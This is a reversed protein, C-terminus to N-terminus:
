PRGIGDWRGARLAALVREAAAKGSLNADTLTKLGETDGLLMRAEILAPDNAILKRLLTDAAEKKGQERLAIALLLRPQTSPIFAGGQLLALGPDGQGRFTAEPPMKLLAALHPEAAAYEEKAVMALALLYRGGPLDQTKALHAAAEDAKGAELLWMAKYLNAHPDSPQKALVRELAALVEPSDKRVRMLQRAADLLIQPDDSTALVQRNMEAAKPLNTGHEAVLDTAEAYLGTGGPMTKRIRAQVAAFEAEPRPGLDIPFTHALLARGGSDAVVVEARGDPSKIVACYPEDPAGSFTWTRAADRARVTLKAGKLPRTPAVKVELADDCRRLGVAVHENAFDAKGIGAAALVMMKNEYAGFAPLLRGCEEFVEHSGGWMEIYGGANAQYLVQKAGPATRHDQLRIVNTDAEPLYWGAFDHRVGVAFLSGQNKDGITMGLDWPLLEPAGHGTVAAAPLIVQIGAKADQRLLWWLKFGCRIPLPNEVRASWSLAAAGPELGVTQVLRLNTARGYRRTEEPKLFEDFRMDMAIKVGGGAHRVIAYGCTEGFHRCHEWFPFSWQGGGMRGPGRDLLKDNRWFLDLDKPRFKVEVLRGGFEPLVVARLYENELVVAPTTYSDKGQLKAVPPWTSRANEQVPYTRPEIRVQVAERDTTPRNAPGDKERPKQADAEVTLARNLDAVAITRQRRARQPWPVPRGTTRSFPHLKVIAESSEEYAGPSFVSIAWTSNEASVDVTYPKAGPSEHTVVVDWDGDRQGGALGDRGDREFRFTWGGKGDITFRFMPKSVGPSLRNDGAFLPALDFLINPHLGEPNFWHYGIAQGAKFQVVCPSQAAYTPNVEYTTQDAVTAYLDGRLWVDRSYGHLNKPRWIPLFVIVRDAGLEHALDHNDGHEFRPTIQKYGFMVKLNNRLPHHSLIHWPQVEYAVDRDLSELNSREHLHPMPPNKRKGRLFQYLWLCEGNPDPRGHEDCFRADAGLDAARAWWFPGLLGAIGETHDPLIPEGSKQLAPPTKKPAPAATGQAAAPLVLLLIPLAIRVIM